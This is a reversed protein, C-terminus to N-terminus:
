RRKRRNYYRGGRMIRQRKEGYLGHIYHAIGVRVSAVYFLMSLGFYTVYSQFNFFEYGYRYTLAISLFATAVFLFLFFFFELPRYNEHKKLELKERTMMILNEAFLYGFLSSTILFLTGVGGLKIRQIATPVFLLILNALLVYFIIM